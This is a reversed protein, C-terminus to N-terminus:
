KPRKRSKRSAAMAQAVLAAAGEPGQRGTIEFEKGRLKNYARFFEEVQDLIYKPVEDLSQIEGNAYSRLAVGILRHNAKKKGDEDQQAEIVGIVRVDVLCGVHAPEEMLIMIDLPDGDPALTSPIFGFDFPFVLGYPLVFKLDFTEYDPDYGFKNRRGKPTEIIAKCQRTKADWQNPCKALNPM